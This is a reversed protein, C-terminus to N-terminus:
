KISFLDASDSQTDPLEIVRRPRVQHDFYAAAIEFRLAKRLSALTLLLCTSDAGGSVAALVREGPAILSQEVIFRRVRAIISRASKDRELPVLM